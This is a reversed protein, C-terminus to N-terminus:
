SNYFFGNVFDRVLNQAGFGIALSAVGVTALVAKLDLGISNLAEYIFFVTLVFFLLYSMISTLTQERIAARQEAEFTTAAKKLILHMGKSILKTGVKYIIFTVFALLIIRGHSKLINDFWAPTSRAEDIFTSYFLFTFLCLNLFGFVVRLIRQIRKRQKKAAEDEDKTEFMELIKKTLYQVIIQVTIILLFFSLLKAMNSITFFDSFNM